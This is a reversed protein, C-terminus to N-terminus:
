GELEGKLSDRIIAFEAAAVLDRLEHEAPPADIWLFSHLVSGDALSAMFGALYTEPADESSSVRCVFRPAATHVLYRSTSDCGVGLIWEDTRHLRVQVTREAPTDTEAAIPTEVITVDPAGANCRPRDVLGRPFDRMLITTGFRVRTSWNKGDASGYFLGSELEVGDGLTVGEGMQHATAVHRGAIVIGDWVAEAGREWTVRVTVTDPPSDGDTGYIERLVERVRDQRYLDFWWKGERWRGYLRRAEAVFLTNYPSEVFIEPGKRTVRVTKM